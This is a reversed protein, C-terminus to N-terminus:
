LYRLSLFCVNFLHLLGLTKQTELFSVEGALCADVSNRKLYCSGENIENGVLDEFVVLFMPAAM